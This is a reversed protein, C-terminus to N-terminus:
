ARAALIRNLFDEFQDMYHPISHQRALEAAANGFQTRRAQDAALERIREGWQGEVETRPGTVPLVYGQRGHEILEASGNLNSSIVPLGSALAELVVNACADYYTPHLLADCAGYLCEPRTTQGAYVLWPARFPPRRKGAVMLRIAPMQQHLRDFVKRLLALNKLRLNHAVFLFCIHQSEVGLKQREADRCAGAQRPNFRETDVGNHLVQVNQPSIPASRMLQGAVFRSVALYFIDPQLLLRKEQAAARRSSPSLLYTCKKIARGFAPYGLLNYRLFEQHTGGGLRHVDAPVNLGWDLSLDPKLEEVLAGFQALEGCHLTVGPLDDGDLAVVHVDHGRRSMEMAVMRAFAEAGGVAAAFHEITLILRM